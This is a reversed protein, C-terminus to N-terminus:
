SCWDDYIDLVGSETICSVVGTNDGDEFNMCGDSGGKNDEDVRYDMFDHGATRVMCGVFNGRPNYNDGVTGDVDLYKDIVALVIEEYDGVTFTDVTTLVKSDSSCTFLETPYIIDSLQRTHNAHEETSEVVPSDSSGYGYPCTGARTSSIM